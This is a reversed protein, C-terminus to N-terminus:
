PKEETGVATGTAIHTKEVNGLLGILVGEAM